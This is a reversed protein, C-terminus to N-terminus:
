ILLKLFTLQIRNSTGGALSVFASASGHGEIEDVQLWYRRPITKVSYFSLKPFNRVVFIMGLKQLELAM